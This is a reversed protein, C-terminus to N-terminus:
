SAVAVGANALDAVSAAADLPRPHGGDDDAHEVDCAKRAAGITL